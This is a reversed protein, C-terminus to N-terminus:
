SGSSVPEQFYLQYDFIPNAKIKEMTPVSPDAPIFPTNLSAVARHFSSVLICVNYSSLIYFGSLVKSDVRFSLAPFPSAHSRMGATHPLIPDATWNSSEWGPPKKRVSSFYKEGEQRLCLCVYM